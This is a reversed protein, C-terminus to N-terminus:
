RGIANQLETRSIRFEGNPLTHALLWGRKIWRYVTCKTMGLIEAAERVSVYPETSTTM